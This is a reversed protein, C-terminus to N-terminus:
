KLYGNKDFVYSKGKIKWTGTLYFGNNYYRNGKSSKAWGTYKGKCRGNKDFYYTKGDIKTLRNIYASEFGYPFHKYDIPLKDEFAKVVDLYYDFDFVYQKESKITTNGLLNCFHDIVKKYEGTKDTSTIGTFDDIYVVYQPIDNENCVIACVYPIDNRVFYVKGSDFYKSASYLFCRKHSIISDNTKTYINQLVAKRNKYSYEVRGIHKETYSEVEILVDDDHAKLFDCFKGGNYNSIDSCNHVICSCEPSKLIEYSIASAHCEQSMIDYENKINDYCDNWNVDEFRFNDIEEANISLPLSLILFLTCGLTLMFTKSLLKM